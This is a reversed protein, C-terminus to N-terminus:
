SRYRAILRNITDQHKKIKGQRILTTLVSDQFLMSRQQAKQSKLQTVITDREQALKSMDAPQREVIKGLLSAPGGAALPGVVTGVPKSFAEALYVASGIGEIASDRSIFDSTKVELGVSKAAAKLDGGNEKLLDAAKKSKESALQTAHQQSYSQRVQAEVESFEAPHPAHTATVVAIALKNGAQLVQSVEGQKLAQISAGIQADLAGLEPIPRGQSYKDASVFLLNLKQAIPQASQPAKVLEAHAQDTRTQMQDFVTQNKLATAIETKVEEIPRLRAPEKEMVQVIHLGYETTIVNSVEKPKLSFATDEFNKVMQGRVVWGLDGGKSASGPDESNKQALQAFDAGSRIQKLLDEAKAQIKPIEDKSKNTTSLLIHRAQVREATRYQDKHSNYYSAVQADSVQISEAVKAQDAVILQLDKTEPVNFMAKSKDFFSKLEEPTPKVDAALKTPDVSIYEIKIKDNRKRYEAEVEAPSVVIGELAVMQIADQYNKLRINNEFDPVSMGLQQEIYQRYQDAPLTGFQLSRITRALQKDSVQFGLQQAEYAVARDTIAQDVLQPVYSDVMERPLQRNQLVNRLQLEIEPVTVAEKGIEAIVQDSSDGVTTGAGPILYVLMSLAVMGLLVGLLIRVAKDRRRFLDFM